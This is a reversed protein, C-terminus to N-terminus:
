VFMKQLLGKKFLTTQDIQTTVQNMKHDIATLFQAIQTQEPISPLNIKVTKIDSSNVATFTSGQELRKWKPEYSLFFQYLFNSNSKSNSKITCVGRGICANHISKAISGVPARVTLLLDGSQCTKTPETTWIRPSSVRNNIDANGQILFMGKGKDNYSKSDPSQGMTIVAIEGLTKTEWKPYSRSREAVPKENEPKFRIEQSFIKQMIGKKYQQLQEKKRNLLNLKTDVATLFQAIKQQEPLTPISLKIKGIESKSVELFTSGNARRYFEKKHNKIWNLLFYNNNKENVILSQFGQNTTCEINSIAVDGITARTTLLITGIPLIRASSKKLGLETIKRESESVFNEKIESPTFWNIGGNWYINKTTDPTGGGVIESVNKITSERWEDKFEPFRFQPIHKEM